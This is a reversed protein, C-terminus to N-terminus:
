YKGNVDFQPTYFEKSPDVQIIFPSPLIQPSTDTVAPGQPYMSGCACCQINDPNFSQVFSTVVVLVSISVLVTRQWMKKKKLDM